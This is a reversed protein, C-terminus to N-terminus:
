VGFTGKFADISAMKASSCFSINVTKRIIKQQPKLWDAGLLIFPAGPNTPKCIVALITGFLM